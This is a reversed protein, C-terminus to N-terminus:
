GWRRALGDYEAQTLPLVTGHRPRGPMTYGSVMSWQGTALDTTTFPIYGRGGYEDIYLYWRNETNSKFVLPGEGQSLSGQGICERVFSYNRNLVTASREALIFKGCASQSSSREDKTYRYYSGNDKILTSDITSYGKDVWVQAPSFTRFDRTTAYMMRNYSSGTHNPDDAAYLKSAWFVVYQGISDDYYAEPAWTNGATDPSVRVLRPASWTVLDTSEWVVISKSGTRQAADWDGGGYIRLDTAIQYFRDGQPARIIFPDRAGRTGVNSTLVPQGGNLQRWRVPDNGQSLGFYIQEGNASGEGTMYSFLYGAYTTPPLADTRVLQWQQNAGGTDTYQSIRGGDTTSWDWVELAKGSNRNVLKVYGSDTDVVRFQQNTGGNDPWQVVDAGDATSSGSIDVLSGSHRARLKHYGGGADVFQFQQNTQGTRAWQQVAAGDATSRGAIEVAKGSHRSVIQYYALPDITAASAQQSPVLATLGAVLVTGVLAAGLRRPRRGLGAPREVVFM